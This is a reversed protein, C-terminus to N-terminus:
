FEEREITARVTDPVPDSLAIRFDRVDELVFVPRDDPRRVKLHILDIDTVDQLVFTPREDPEMLHLTM